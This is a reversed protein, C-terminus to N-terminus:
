EIFTVKWKSLNFSVLLEAVHSKGSMDDNNKISYNSVNVVFCALEEM